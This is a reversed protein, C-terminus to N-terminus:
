VKYQDSALLRVPEDTDTASVAGQSCLYRYIEGHQSEAILDLPTHFWTHEEGIFYELANVDAGHQILLKIAELQRNRVAYHLAVEGRSRPNNNIAGKNQNVDLGSSILYNMVKLNGAESAKHLLTEGNLDTETIDAGYEQLLELLEPHAQRASSLIPVCVKREDVVEMTEDYMPVNVFLEAGHELLIRAAEVRGYLCATTLSTRGFRSVTNVEAGRDILMSVAEPIGTKAAINLPLDYDTISEQLNPNDIKSFIRIIADKVKSDPSKLYLEVLKGISRPLATKKKVRIPSPQDLAKTLRERLKWLEKAWGESKGVEQWLEKLESKAEIVNLASIALVISQHSPSYASGEIWRKADQYIGTVKLCSAAAVIAAAAVGEEATSADQDSSEIAVKLTADIKHSADDCDKLRDFWDLATDNGFPKNSWAGM